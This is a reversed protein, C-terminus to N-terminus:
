IDLSEEEVMSNIQKVVDESLGLETLSRRRTVTPVKTEFEESDFVNKMEDKFNSLFNNKKNKKKRSKIKEKVFAGRM